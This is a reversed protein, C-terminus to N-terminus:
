GEVVCFGRPALTLWDPAVVQLNYGMVIKGAPIDWPDGSRNAYIKYTKGQYSRTYSVALRYVDDRYRYYLEMVDM